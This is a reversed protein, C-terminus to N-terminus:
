LLQDVPVVSEQLIISIMIYLVVVTSKINFLDFNGSLDSQQEVDYQTRNQLLCKREIFAIAKNFIRGV